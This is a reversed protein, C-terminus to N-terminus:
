ANALMGAMRKLLPALQGNSEESVALIRAFDNKLNDLDPCPHAEVPTDRARIRLGFHNELCELEEQSRHALLDVTGQDVPIKGRFTRDLYALEKLERIKNVLGNPFLLIMMRTIFLLNGAISPNLEYEQKPFTFDDQLELNFLNAFDSVINWKEYDRGYIRFVFNEKGFIAAWRKAASFYPPCYSQAFERLSMATKGFKVRQRWVSVAHMVPERVYMVVQTRDHPCLSTVVEPKQLNAFEECSLICIDAGATEAHFRDAWDETMGATLGTQGPATGNMVKMLGIHRSRITGTKPYAVGQRHLSERNDALAQQLSTTGTKEPGIHLIYEM